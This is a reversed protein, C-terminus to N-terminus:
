SKDHVASHPCEVLVGVIENSTTARSDPLNSAYYAAM